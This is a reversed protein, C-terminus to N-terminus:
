SSFRTGLERLREHSYIGTAHGDSFHIALAYHGMPELKTAKLPQTEALTLVPLLGAAPGAPAAARALCTACPCHDRLTRWSLQHIAGDDWALTLGDAAATIRTLHPM